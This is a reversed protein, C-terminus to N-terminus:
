CSDAWRRRVLVCSCALLSGAGLSRRVGGFHGRKRLIGHVPGGRLRVFTDQLPLVSEIALRGPDMLASSRHAPPLRKRSVTNEQETVSVAASVQDLDGRLGGLLPCGGEEVPWAKSEEACVAWHSPPASPFVPRRFGRLFFAKEIQPGFIVANMPSEEDSHARSNSALWEM